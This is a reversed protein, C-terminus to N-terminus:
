APLTTTLLGDDCKAFLVVTTSTSRHVDVGGPIHRSARRALEIAIRASKTTLLTDIRIRVVVHYMTM